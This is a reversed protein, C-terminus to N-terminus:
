RFLLLRSAYQAWVVGQHEGSGLLAGGAAVPPPEVEWVLRGTRGQWGRVLCVLPDQASGSWTVVRDDGVSVLGAEAAGKALTVKWAEKLESGATVYRRLVAAPRDGAQGSKTLVYLVGEPGFAIGDAAPLGDALTAMFRPKLPDSSAVIVRRTTSYALAASGRSAAFADPFGKQGGLDRSSETGSFLDLSSLTNADRLLLLTGSDLAVALRGSDPLPVVGLEKRRLGTAADLVRVLGTVGRRECRVLLGSGPVALLDAIDADSERYAWLPRGSAADLAEMSVDRVSPDAPSLAANPGPVWSLFIRGDAAAARSVVAGRPHVPCHVWVTEGTAPRVAQVTADRIVLLLGADTFLLQRAPEAPETDADRGGVVFTLALSEGNRRVGLTIEKGAALCIARRLQDQSRIRVGNWSEAIDGAVVGGRDASSGPVVSGFQTDGDSLATFTVGFYGRPDLGTWLTKDLEADRAELVAARQVFVVRAPDLGAWTGSPILITPGADRAVANPRSIRALDADNVRWECWPGPQGDAPAQRAPRLARLAASAEPAPLDRGGFTVTERAHCRELRMAAGEVRDWAEAKAFLAGARAVLSGCGSAMEPRRSVEMLALGAEGHRGEAELRDALLGAAAPASSSNPFQELWKKWDDAGGGQRLKEMMERARKEVEEYLDVGHQLVIERIKAEAFQRVPRALGNESSLLKEGYKEIVEQYVQIAERWQGLKELCEGMDRFADGLAADVPAAAIAARYHTVADKWNGARYHAAGLALQLEMVRTRARTARGPDAQEALKAIREYDAIAGSYTAPNQALVEAHQELKGLDPNASTLVDAYGADFTAQDTFCTLGAPTISLLRNGVLLLTGADALKSEAQWDMEFALKFNRSEWANLSGELPLYFRSATLFGRGAIRVALNGQTLSIVPADQPKDPDTRALDIAFASNAGQFWARGDRTGCFWRVKDSANATKSMAPISLLKRGTRADFEQYNDADGALFCVRQETVVVPSLGRGNREGPQVWRRGGVQRAQGADYEVLWLVELTSARVAALAGINTNVYLVGDSEALVPAEALMWGGWGPQARRGECLFVRRALKGTEADLVVIEVSPSANGSTTVAAYVHRGYALPPSGFWASQLEPDDKTNWLPDGRLTFAGLSTTETQAGWNVTRPLFNVFVRGGAILPACMSIVRPQGMMTQTFLSEPVADAPYKWLAKGNELSVAWISQGDAIVVEGGPGVAPYAHLSPMATGMRMWTQRVQNLHQTLAEGTMGPPFSWMRVENRVQSDSVRSAANNGGIRPWDAGRDARVRAKQIKELEAVADKATVRRGGLVLPANGLEELRAKAAAWGEEDGTRRCAAGWKALLPAMPLDSRPYVRAALEWYHLADALHGQEACLDALRAAADDGVATFFYENVVTELGAGGDRLAQELLSKAVADNASRYAALGDEPFTAIREFVFRRLGKWSKGDTGFPVLSDPHKSLVKAYREVAAEWRGDKEAAAAEALLAAAEESDVWIPSGEPQQGRAAGSWCLVCAVMAVIGRKM